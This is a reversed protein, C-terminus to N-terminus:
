MAGAGAGAGAGVDAAAAVCCGCYHRADVHVVPEGNDKCVIEFEGAHTWRADFLLNEDDPLSDYTASSGECSTDWVRLCYGEGYDALLKSALHCFQNKAEEATSFTNATGVEWNEDRYSTTICCLSTMESIATSRLCQDRNTRQLTVGVRDTERRVRRDM